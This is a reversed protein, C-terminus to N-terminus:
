LDLGVRDGDYALSLRQLPACPANIACGTSLDFTIGHRSCRLMTGELTGNHLPAGQHPCRNEMLIPQRDVVILLLHRGQVQFTGRYGEDLNILRELAVFM